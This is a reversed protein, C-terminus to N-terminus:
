HTAAGAVVGLVCGGWLMAFSLEKDKRGGSESVSGLLAPLVCFVSAFFSDGAIKTTGTTQPHIEKYSYYNRQFIFFGIASSTAAKSLTILRDTESSKEASYSPSSTATLFLFAAVVSAKIKFVKM